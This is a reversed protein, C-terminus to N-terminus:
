AQSSLSKLCILDHGFHRVLHRDTVQLPASDFAAHQDREDRRAPFFEAIGRGPFQDDGGDPTEGNLVARSLGFNKAAVQM